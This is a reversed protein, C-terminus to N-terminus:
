TEGGKTVEVNITIHRYSADAVMSTAKPCSDMAEGMRHIMNSPVYLGANLLVNEVAVADGTFTVKAMLYKNAM